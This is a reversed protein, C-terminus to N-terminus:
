LRVVKDAELMAISMEALGTQEFGDIIIDRQEGEEQGLVGRRQAAASCVLLQCASDAKLQQWQKVMDIEDGAPMTTALANSVGEQYFFVAHLTHGEELVARALNLATASGQHGYVPSTVILTYRSM